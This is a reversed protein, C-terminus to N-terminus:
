TLILFPSYLLYHKGKPVKTPRKVIEQFSVRNRDKIEKMAVNEGHEEYKEASGKQVSKPLEVETKSQVVKLHKWTENRAFGRSAGDDRGNIDTM